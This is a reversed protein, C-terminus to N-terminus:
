MQGRGPSSRAQSLLGAAPVVALDFDITVRNGTPPAGEFRHDDDGPGAPPVAPSVASFRTGLCPHGFYGDPLNSFVQCPEDDVAIPWNTHTIASPLRPFNEPMVRFSGSIAMPQNRGSGDSDVVLLLTVPHTATHVVPDIPGSYAENLVMNVSHEFRLRTLDGSVMLTNPGAPETRNSKFILESEYVASPGSGNTLRGDSGTPGGGGAPYFVLDFRSAAPETRDLVVIGGLRVRGVHFQDPNAATGVFLRATSHGSDLRWVDHNSLRTATSGLNPGSPSFLAPQAPARNESVTQQQAKLSGALGTLIMFIMMSRM